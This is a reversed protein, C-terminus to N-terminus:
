LYFLVFINILLVLGVFSRTWHSIAATVESGRQHRSLFITNHYTPPNRQEVQRYGLTRDSIAATAESGRLSQLGNHRKTNRM